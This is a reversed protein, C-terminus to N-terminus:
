RPTLAPRAPPVPRAAVTFPSVDLLEISRIVKGEPDALTVGGSGIEPDLTPAVLVLNGTSGLVDVASWALDFKEWTPEGTGSGVRALTRMSSVVVEGDRGFAVDRVRRADGLSRTTVRGAAGAPTLPHVEVLVTRSEDTRPVVVRAGDPSLRMRSFMYREGGDTLDVSGLENGAATFTILRGSLGELVYVRDRGADFAVDLPLGSVEWAATLVGKGLDFVMVEARPEPRGANRAALAEHGYPNVVATVRGGAVAAAVAPRDVLRTVFALGDADAVRLGGSSAVVASRGDETFAIDHVFEQLPIRGVVEGRDLDVVRIQNSAVWAVQPAGPAAAGAAPLAALLLTALLAYVARM